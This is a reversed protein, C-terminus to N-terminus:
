IGGKSNAKTPGPLTMEKEAPDNRGTHSHLLVSQIIGLGGEKRVEEKHPM